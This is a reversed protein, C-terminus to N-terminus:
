RDQIEDLGLQSEVYRLVGEDNCLEPFFVPTLLYSTLRERSVGSKSFDIDLDGQRLSAPFYGGLRESNAIRYVFMKRIPNFHISAKLEPGPGISPRSITIGNNIDRVIVQGNPFHKKYESIDALVENKLEAIFRQGAQIFQKVEERFRYEEELCADIWHSM